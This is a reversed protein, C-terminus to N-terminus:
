FHPDYYRERIGLTLVAIGNRFKGKRDLTFTWTAGDPDTFYTYIASGDHGSGSIVKDTDRRVTIERPQGQRLGTKFRRVNIITAPLADSGFNITAANNAERPLENSM